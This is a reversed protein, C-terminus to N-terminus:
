YNVNDVHNYVAFIAVVVIFLQIIIPHGMSYSWFLTPMQASAFVLWSRPRNLAIMRLSFLSFAIVGIPIIWSWLIENSM